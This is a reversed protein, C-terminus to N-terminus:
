QGAALKMLTKRAAKASMNKRWFIVFGFDIMLSFSQFASEYSFLATVTFHQYLITVLYFRFKVNNPLLLMQWMKVIM